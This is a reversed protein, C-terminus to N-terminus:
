WPDLGVDVPQDLPDQALGFRGGLRDHSRPEASHLIIAAHRIPPSRQPQPEGHHDGHHGRQQQHPPPRLRGPDALGTDAPLTTPRGGRGRGRGAIATTTEPDAATVHVAAALALDASPDDVEVTQRHALAPHDQVTQSRQRLLAERDVAARDLNPGLPLKDPGTAAAHDAGLKAM